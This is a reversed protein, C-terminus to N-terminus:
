VGCDELASLHKHTVRTMARHHLREPESAGLDQNRPTTILRTHGRAAANPTAATTGRSSADALIQRRRDISNTESPRIRSAAIRFPVRSRDV